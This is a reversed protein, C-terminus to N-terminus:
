ACHSCTIYEMKCSSLAVVVQQKASWAIISGSCKILFGSMSKHGESMAWDSNTFAKFLPFSNPSNGYTLGQGQTGQLYHLLHKAAKFHKMGYNLMFKALERITFAIDPRTCNALYM